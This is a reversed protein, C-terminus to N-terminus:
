QLHFVRGHCQPCFVRERLDIGEVSHTSAMACRYDDCHILKLTHGIEHVCEKILRDLLLEPNPPLGYFEQRLRYASVLACPGGIQAEGFVFTLVPIYLDLATIGLVRWSNSGVQHQMRELIRSSHYQQREGHLAFEADMPSPLFECPLRFMYELEGQLERCLGQNLPGVRLLHLKM